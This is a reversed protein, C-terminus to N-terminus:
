SVGQIHAVTEITCSGNKDGGDRLVLWQLELMVGQYYDIVVRLFKEILLSINVLPRSHIHGPCYTPLSVYNLQM